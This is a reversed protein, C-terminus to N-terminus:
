LCAESHATEPESLAQSTVVLIRCLFELFEKAVEKMMRGPGSSGLFM